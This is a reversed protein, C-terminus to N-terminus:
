GERMELPRSQQIYYDQKVTKEKMIRFIDNWERRTQFTLTSFNVSLRICTGKCIVETKERSAKLIREKDKIKSLNNM